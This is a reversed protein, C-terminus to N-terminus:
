VREENQKIIISSMLTNFAEGTLGWSFRQSFTHANKQVQEYGKNDILANEMTKLLERNTNDKVIFGAKGNDVADVLGPSKYVISPTGVAASETVILGWGERTSPVLLLHARSMLELKKEETVFGYFTVDNDDGPDGYKLGYGACIPLLSQTIYLEDKEGVIWLRANSHRRKLEGFASFCVDIGKYKAFRGVYIFTPAVEKKCFESEGWPTFNLGIPLIEIKAEDFGVNVLDQKTSQSITLTLDKKNLCLMTNEMAKGIKNFPFRLHVDWIERTLQFILFIRKNSKVWLRTFFRYTNCQDVVFDIHNRNKRYYRICEFILTLLNGRRIYIIGDIEEYDSAGDFMPSLHIFRYKELDSNRMMEHTFIEAGGM